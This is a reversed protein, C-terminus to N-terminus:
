IEELIFSKFFDMFASIINLPPLLEIMDSYLSCILTALHGWPRMGLMHWSAVTLDFQKFVCEEQSEFILSTKFKILCVSSFWLACFRCSVKISRGAWGRNAPGTLVSHGTRCLRCDHAEKHM